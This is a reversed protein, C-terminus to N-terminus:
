LLFTITLKRKYIININSILRTLIPKNSKLLNIIKSAMLTIIYKFIYKKRKVNDIYYIKNGILKKVDRDNGM